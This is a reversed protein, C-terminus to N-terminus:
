EVSSELERIREKLLVEALDPVVEWAVDRVVSDGILEAVRHAIREVDAESLAGNGAPAAAAREPAPAAPLPAPEVTPVSVTASAAPVDPIELDPAPEFATALGDGGEAPASAFEAEPEEPAMEFVPEEGAAEDPRSTGAGILEQARRLLEQSDFPKKLHGSAGAEAAREEDYVEFTGVLLLVPTGPRLRRAAAAVEYGDAGPMHVDAIVLDPATTELRSIAESGDGLTIVEFDEDLFTLEVVKQITVSDDALLITGSM